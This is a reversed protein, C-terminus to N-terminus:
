VLGGPNTPSFYEEDPPRFGPDLIGSPPPLSPGKFANNALVMEGSAARMLTRIPSLGDRVAIEAALIGMLIIIPGVM